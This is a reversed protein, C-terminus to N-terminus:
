DSHPEYFREYLKSLSMRLVIQMDAEGIPTFGAAGERVRQEDYLEFDPDGFSARSQSADIFAKAKLKLAIADFRLEEDSAWAFDRGNSRVVRVHRFNKLLGATVREALHAALPDDDSHSHGLSGSLSISFIGGPALRARALAFFRESHLMATQLYTPIPVDISIVDFPPGTYNGLYHKGDDIILKWEGPFGGRPEQIHQRALRAVTEDIEVVKLEAVRPSLYRATDLSGGAIVLANSPHMRMLNPLISVVLNHHHLLSSGYLLNGNLYLYTSTDSKQRATLIDVRQYPSFESALIEVDRVGLRHQYYYRLSARDLRPFLAAYLLPLGLLLGRVLAPVPWWLLLIAVMGLLDATLIWRMRAPSLTVALAIGGMGGAIETAYLRALRHPREGGDVSSSDVMRPLCLAYFPAIGLLVLLFLFPPTNGALHIRWMTGSFWRASFPLTCHLALTATGLALLGRRSIRDSIRYGISLGLFYACLAILLVLENSGLQSPFETLTLYHILSLNAGAIAVIARTRRHESSGISGSPANM